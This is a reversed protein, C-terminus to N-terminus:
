IRPMLRPVSAHVKAPVDQTVRGEEQRKSEKSTQSQSIDQPPGEWAVHIGNTIGQKGLVESADFVGERGHDPSVSV